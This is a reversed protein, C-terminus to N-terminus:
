REWNSGDKAIEEIYEDLQTTDIEKMDLAVSIVQLTSIYAQFETEWGYLETWGDALRAEGKEVMDAIEFTGLTGPLISEPPTPNESDIFIVCKTHARGEFNPHAELAKIMAEALLPSRNFASM